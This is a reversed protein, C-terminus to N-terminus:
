IPTALVPPNMLYSQVDQFAASCVANWVYPTGKKMLLSFPQCKGAHNQIFCRLYALKKQLSKLEHLNRPKPMAVIADIKAQKIEIGHRRVVFGLFKGSTVGFACKLPNM